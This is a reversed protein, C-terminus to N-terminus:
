LEEDKAVRESSILGEISVKPEKRERLLKKAFCQYDGRIDATM